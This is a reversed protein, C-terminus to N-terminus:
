GPLSRFRVHVVRTSNSRSPMARSLSCRSRFCSLMDISYAQIKRSKAFPVRRIMWEWAADMRTVSKSGPDLYFKTWTQRAFWALESWALLVDLVTLRCIRVFPANALGEQDERIRM